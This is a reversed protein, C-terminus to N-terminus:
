FCGGSSSINDMTEFDWNQWSTPTFINGNDSVTSTFSTVYGGSTRFIQNM